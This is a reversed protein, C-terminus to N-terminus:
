RTGTEELDLTAHLLSLLGPVLDPSTLVSDADDHSRLRL